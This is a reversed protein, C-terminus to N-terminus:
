YIGATEFLTEWKIRDDKSLEARIWGRLEMEDSWFDFWGAGTFGYPKTGFAKHVLKINETNQGILIWAQELLDKKTGTDKMANHLLQAIQRARADSITAKSRDIDPVFVEVNTTKLNGKRAFLFAIYGVVLFKWNKALWNQIKDIDLNM